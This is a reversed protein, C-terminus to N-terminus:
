SGLAPHILTLFGFAEAGLHHQNDINKDGLHRKIAWEPFEDKAMRVVNQKANDTVKKLQDVYVESFDVYVESTVIVGSSM